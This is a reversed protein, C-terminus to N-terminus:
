GHPLFYLSAKEMKTKQGTGYVCIIVLNKRMEIGGDGIGSEGHDYDEEHSLWHRRLVVEFPSLPYFCYAMM